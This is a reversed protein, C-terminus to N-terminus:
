FKETIKGGRAPFGLGERCADGVPMSGAACAGEGGRVTLRLREARMRVVCTCEGGQLGGGGCVCM